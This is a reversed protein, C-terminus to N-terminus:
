PGVHIGAALQAALKGLTLGSWDDPLRQFDIDTKLATEAQALIEGAILSDIGLDWVRRDATLQSEDIGCIGSVIEVLVRMVDDQRAPMGSDAGAM